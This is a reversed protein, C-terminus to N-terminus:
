EERTTKTTEVNEFQNYLSRTLQNSLGDDRVRTLRGTPGVRYTAMPGRGNGLKVLDGVGYYDDRWDSAPQDFIVGSRKRQREEAQVARDWADTM